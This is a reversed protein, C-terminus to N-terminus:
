LESPTFRLLDICSGKLLFQRPSWFGETEKLKLGWQNKCGSIISFEREPVPVRPHPFQHPAPVGKNRM